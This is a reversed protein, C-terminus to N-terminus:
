RSRLLADLSFRGAGHSAMVLGFGVLMAAPFAARMGHQADVMALAVIFNIACILGAWRTMLGAIFAAGCAFQAWVSLPAMLEPAAFGNASLFEAFEAMRAPSVINDWVGWILFVGVYVRFAALVADAGGKLEDLFLLRKLM